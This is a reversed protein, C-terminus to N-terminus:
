FNVALNSFSINLFLYIIKNFISTCFFTVKKWSYPKLLTFGEISDTYWELEFSDSDSSEEAVANEIKLVSEVFAFGALSLALERRSITSESILM